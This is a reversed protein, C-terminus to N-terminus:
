TVGFLTRRISGKTSREMSLYEGPLARASVGVLIM